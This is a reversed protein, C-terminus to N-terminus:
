RWDGKKWDKAKLSSLPTRGYYRAAPDGPYYGPLLRTATEIQAAASSDLEVESLSISKDLAARLRQKLVPQGAELLSLMAEAAGPPLMSRAELGAGAKEVEPPPPPMIELATDSTPPRAPLVRAPSRERERRLGYYQFGAVPRPQKYHSGRLAVTFPQPAATYNLGLSSFGTGGYEERLQQTQPHHNLQIHRKVDYYSHRAAVEAKREAQARRYELEAASNAAVAPPLNCGALLDVRQTSDASSKGGGGGGGGDQGGTPDSRMTAMFGDVADQDAMGAAAPLLEPPCSASRGKAEEPLAPKTPIGYHAAARLNGRSIYGLGTNYKSPTRVPRTAVLNEYRLGAPMDRLDALHRDRHPTSHSDVVSHQDGHRFGTGSVNPASFKPHDFNEFTEFIPGPIANTSSDTPHVCRTPWWFHVEKGKSIRSKKPTISGAEAVGVEQLSSLSSSSSSSSDAQEDCAQMAEAMFASHKAKTAAKTDWLAVRRTVVDTVSIDRMMRATDADGAELRDVFARPSVQALKNLLTDPSDPREGSATLPLVARFTKAPSAVPSSPPSHDHQLASGTERRRNELIRIKESAMSNKLAGITDISIKAQISSAAAYRKKQLAHIEPPTGARRVRPM